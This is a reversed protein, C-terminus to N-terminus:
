FLKLSIQVKYARAIAEPDQGYIFHNIFKMLGHAKYFNWLQTAAERLLVVEKSNWFNAMSDKLLIKKGDVELTANNWVFTSILLAIL